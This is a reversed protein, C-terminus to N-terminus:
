TTSNSRMLLLFAPIQREPLILFGYVNRCLLGIRIYLYKEVYLLIIALTVIMPPCALNSEPRLRQQHLAPMRDIRQGHGSCDSSIVCM